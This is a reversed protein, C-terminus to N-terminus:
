SSLQITNTFPLHGFGLHELYFPPSDDIAFRECQCEHHKFESLHPIPLAPYQCNCSTWDQHAKV